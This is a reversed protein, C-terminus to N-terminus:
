DAKMLKAGNKDYQTFATLGKIVRNLSTERNVYEGENYMSQEQGRFTSVRCLKHFKKFQHGSSLAVYGWM